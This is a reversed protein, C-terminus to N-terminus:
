FITCPHMIYSMIRTCHLVYFFIFVCFMQLRVIPLLSLRSQTARTCTKKTCSNVVVLFVTICLLQLVLCVLKQWRLLQVIM